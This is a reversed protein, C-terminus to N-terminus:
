IRKCGVGPKTVWTDCNIGNETYIAKVKEAIIDGNVHRMDFFSMICPGSGGLFSALAGHTQAEKKAEKLFPVLKTRAPEIVADNVSKGIWKLDGTTMGYVMTSANGIHFVMDRLSVERPLVKRADITAIMVNPLVVVMGLDKPPEIKIVEFPQYSRIVTFGGLICPSVNDAHFGGSTVDEAHAACLILETSSLKEGCLINALFAGGAASAGSSGMGSCPRIGKKIKLEIGFDANCRKLVQEAAISVSNIKPDLPINESGHGTVELIKLGSDIKRGEIIDFPESMALGFTDFGPGINSTTAPAAIKVWNGSM